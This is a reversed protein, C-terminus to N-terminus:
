RASWMGVSSLLASAGGYAIVVKSMGFSSLARVDALPAVTHAGKAFEYGVWGFPAPSGREVSQRFVENYQGIRAETLAADPLGLNVARFLKNRLTAQHREVLEATYAGALLYALRQGFIDLICLEMAAMELARSDGLTQALETDRPVMGRLEVASQLLGSVVNAPRYGTMPPRPRSSLILLGEEQIIGSPDNDPNWEAM